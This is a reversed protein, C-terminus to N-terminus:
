GRNKLLKRILSLEEEKNMVEGNLKADLARTFIERYRPGPPLGLCHLDDGSVLLCMGNYVDLFDAIHGRLAPNNYKARLSLIAEYSLPELLAFIRSPKAKPRSLDAIFARSINKCSLIRKEEGKRLGFRGCIDRAASLNLPGLLGILYILWTDLRRRGPYNKNFWKIEKELSRLYAYAKASLKLDPHIFALGALKEIRRIAKIPDSEKLVLILDDRTRHPHVKQLLKLRAAEKLLKLTLPEITFRLRQEFRIGRLIRTPDDKFSLDHLVRIKKHKLDRSGRFLDIVRGDDLSIAMANITFDRRYLDDSLSGPSVVPLHAAKPYVEKRASSFDVKIGSKLLVTATGFQKHATIKGGQSGAFSGAFKIGDGEVLIDLDLNKVGLILDRVFGGVLYANFGGSFAEDRLKSILGKLEGPIKDLLGMM